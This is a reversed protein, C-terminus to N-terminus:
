TDQKRRKQIVFFGTDLKDERLMEFMIKYVNEKNEECLIFCQQLQLDYAVAREVTFVPRDSFLNSGVVRHYYDCFSVDPSLAPGLLKFMDKLFKKVEKMTRMPKEKLPGVYRAPQKKSKAKKKKM